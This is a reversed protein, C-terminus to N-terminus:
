ADDPRQANSKGGAKIFQRDSYAAEDGVGDLIQANLRRVSDYHRYADEVAKGLAEFKRELEDGSRSALAARGIEGEFDGEFRALIEDIEGIVRRFMGLKQDLLDLVYSDITSLAVL